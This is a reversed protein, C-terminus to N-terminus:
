NETLTKITYSDYTFTATAIIPETDMSATNFQISSIAIPFAKKFQVRYKPKYSSNTILLTIDSFFDMTQTEAIVSDNNELNGIEEMWRYVELWNRMDEDVLFSVQLDEYAYQCGIWKPRLGLTSPQEVPTLTLSPLNATQCFYTVTPTRTIELQFYNVGLYNNTDPQRNSRALTIDPIGPGTYGPYDGSYGSHSYGVIAQEYVPISLPVDANFTHEKQTYGLPRKNRRSM